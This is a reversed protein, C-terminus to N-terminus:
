PPIGASVGQYGPLFVQCPVGAEKHNLSTPQLQRFQNTKAAAASVDRVGTGRLLM